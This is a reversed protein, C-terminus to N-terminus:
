YYHNRYFCYYCHYTFSWNATTFCDPIVLALNLFTKRWYIKFKIHIEFSFKTLEINNPFFHFLPSFHEYFRSLTIELNNNSIFLRRSFALNYIIVSSLYINILNLFTGLLIYQLGPVSCIVYYIVLGTVLSVEYISRFAKM